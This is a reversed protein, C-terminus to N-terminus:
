VSVAKLSPVDIRYRISLKKKSGGMQQMHLESTFSMVSALKKCHYQDETCAYCAHLKVQFFNSSFVKAPLPIEGVIVDSQVMEIFWGNRKCLKMAYLQTVTYYVIHMYMYWIIQHIFNLTIYLEPDVSQCRQDTSVKDLPGLFHYM